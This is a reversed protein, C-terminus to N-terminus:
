SPRTSVYTLPESADLWITGAGDPEGPDDAVGEPADPECDPDDVDDEALPWDPAGGPDDLEVAPAPFPPAELPVPETAGPDPVPLGCLPPVGDPSAPTDPTEVLGMPEPVVPEPEDPEAWCDLEFGNAFARVPPQCRGELNAFARNDSAQEFLPRILGVCHM